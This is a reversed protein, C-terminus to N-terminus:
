PKLDFDFVNEGGDKVTAALGSQDALSYKEPVESKPANQAAQAHAASPNMQGAGSAAAEHAAEPSISEAAAPPQKAVLVNFDGAAAGDGADYTTLTYYGDADTRGVAAPHQGKPAFTVVADAVAKGNLKITGTTEFVDLRDGDGDSGACGVVFVLAPLILLQRLPSM